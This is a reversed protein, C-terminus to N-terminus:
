FLIDSTLGSLRWSASSGLMMAQWSLGLGSLSASNPLAITLRTAGPVVIGPLTVIGSPDLHLLGLSPVAVPRPLRRLGVLPIAGGSGYGPEIYLDLTFPRGLRALGTGFLQRHRNVFLKGHAFVDIDGDREIDVLALSSDYSISGLQIRRSENRFGFRGDGLLLLPAGGFPVAILIMDRNGDGDFDAIRVGSSKHTYRPLSASADAFVGKGGNRYLRTRDPAGIGAASNAFVLDPDGDNDFDAVDIGLSLDLVSPLRTASQNGYKGRGDNIYIANQQRRGLLATDGNAFVIDLDRDGDLDAFAVGNSIDSDMPLLANTRDVFTANGQNVFLRNQGRNAFVLDIDRDGDIDAASLAMTSQTVKPLRSSADTFRARGDNLMLGTSGASTFVLDLDGDLDCDAAIVRAAQSATAPLADAVRTYRGSGDNRMMGLATVADADGDGDFDAFVAYGGIQLSEPFLGGRADVFLGRGRNYYPTSSPLVLDLDRDGDVDVFAACFGRHGRGGIRETVDTFSGRGTNLLLLGSGSLGVFLDNDQDGDIDAAALTGPFYRPTAITTTTGFVGRGDNWSRRITSGTATADAEVLDVDGDRDLDTLLVATTSSATQVLRTGSEDRFSGKGDNIYVKNREARSRGKGLVLDPDGDGDVDAVTLSRTQEQDRPVQAATVDRFNGRGDNLFLRTQAPGGSGDKGLILDLDRDGDVDVLQVASTQAPDAPLRSTGNDFSGNGRNLMLQTQGPTTSFSSSGLM